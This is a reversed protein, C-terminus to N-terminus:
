CSLAAALVIQGCTCYVSSLIILPVRLSLTLGHGIFLGYMECSM